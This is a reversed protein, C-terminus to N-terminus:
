KSTTDSSRPDEALLRLLAGEIDNALIWSAVLAPGTRPDLPYESWKSPSTKRTEVGVYAEWLRQGTRRDYVAYHARVDAPGGYSYGGFPIVGFLAYIGSEQRYKTYSMSALLYDADLSGFLNPDIRDPMLNATAGGGSRFHVKQELAVGGPLTKKGDHLVLASGEGPFFRRHEGNRSWQGLARTAGPVQAVFSRVRDPGIFHVAGLNNRFVRANARDFIVANVPDGGFTIPPLVAVTSQALSPALGNPRVYLQLTSSSCGFSGTALFAVVLCWLVGPKAGILPFFRFSPTPAPFSLTDSKRDLETAGLM